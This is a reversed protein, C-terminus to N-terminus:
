WVGKWKRYVCKLIIWNIGLKYVHDREKLHFKQTGRTGEMEGKKTQDGVYCTRLLAPNAM